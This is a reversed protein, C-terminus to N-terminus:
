PMLFGGHVSHCSCGTTSSSPVGWIATGNGHCSINSCTGNSYSFTRAPYPRGPGAQLDVVGNLHTTNGPVLATRSAATASHCDACSIVTTHKLLHATHSGSTNTHCSNCSTSNKYANLSDAQAQTIIGSGVLGTVATDISGTITGNNYLYDISDFILQKAYASNHAYAGPEKLLLVYNFAAGMTNAANPFCTWDTNTFYPYNPSYNFGRYALTKNLVELANAFYVRRANIITTDDLSTGHCNACASTAIKGISGNSATSIVKFLHKQPASMHCAVCPGATGTGNSNGMGISRHSNSSYFAYTRGPFNYGGKGHLIGGAALYHPAIFAQNSFDDSTISLGNNWGSHCNMCINSPGADQNVYSDDAFPKVPSVTRVIGNAVDSHCSNCALVEKTKDSEVGWAATVKGSSYAIFGTTTHCQVCGAKTKFDETTWAPDTFAAHGSKAWQHRVTANVSTSAHCNTCTARPTLYSAPYGASTINNYHPVGTMGTVNGPNHLDHCNSCLNTGNYDNHFDLGAPPWALGYSNGSYHCNVCATNPNHVGGAHCFSCSAAGAPAVHVSRAFDTVISPNHCTICFNAGGSTFNFTTESVSGSTLTGPHGGTNAGVHCNACMVFNARHQSSSWNNFVNQAIGVNNGQHCNQCQSKAAAAPDNTVNVTTTAFSGGTVTLRFTYTGPVSATFTANSGSPTLTVTAPGSTQTWTYSTIAGTSGSGDLIVQTNPLVTQPSGANAVPPGAFTGALAVSGTFTYNTPFTVVVATNAAAPVAPSVTAGAPVGAISVVNFGSVPTFTFRLPSYLRTGYYIGSVSAPTASGGAGASATVSLQQAAFTVYVSQANPGSVTYSSPNAIPLTQSVGNYTVNSITYGTNANVTVNFAQSTTYSKFVSGNASTQPSGNRVVINGGSTKVWTNLSWSAAHSLVPFICLLTAVAIIWKRM